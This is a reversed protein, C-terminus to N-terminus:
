AASDSRRDDTAHRAYQTLLGAAFIAFTVSTSLTQDYELTATGGRVLDMWGPITIALLGAGIATLCVAMLIDYNRMALVGTILGVLAAIGLTQIVVDGLAEVTVVVETIRQEPAALLGPSLFDRVLPRIEDGLLAILVALFGASFGAFGAAFRALVRILIAGLLAGVLVLLGTVVLLEGSTPQGGAGSGTLGVWGIAGGAAGGGVWGIPGLVVDTLDYGAVILLGGVGSVIALVSIIVPDGSIM